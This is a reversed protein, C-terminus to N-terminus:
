RASCSSSSTKTIEESMLNDNCGDTLVGIVDGRRGKEEKHQTKENLKCETEQASPLKILGAYEFSSNM